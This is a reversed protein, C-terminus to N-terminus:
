TIPARVNLKDAQLVRVHDFRVLIDASRDRQQVTAPFRSNRRRLTLSAEFAQTKCGTM